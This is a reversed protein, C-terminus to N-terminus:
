FHPPGPLAPENPCCANVANHVHQVTILL